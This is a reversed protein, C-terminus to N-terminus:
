RAHNYIENYWTSVQSLVEDINNSGTWRISGESVTLEPTQLANTSTEAEVTSAKM